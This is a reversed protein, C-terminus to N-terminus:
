ELEEDALKQVLSVILPQISKPMKVFAKMLRDGEESGVFDSVFEMPQFITTTVNEKSAGKFFTEPSVNLANAIQVIRSSGVRNSGKEYRQIQQFTLGIAEGLKVQSLGAELRRSRILAGVHRDVDKIVKKVM